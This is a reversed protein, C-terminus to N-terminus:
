KTICEGFLPKGTWFDGCWRIIPLPNIWRWNCPGSVECINQECARLPDLTLAKFLFHADCIAEDYDECSQVSFKRCFEDDRAQGIAGTDVFPEELVVLGPDITRLIVWSGLLLLLGLIANFILGKARSIQDPKGAATVWLFGAIVIMVFAFIAAFTIAFNYLALIHFAPGSVQTVLGGGPQPLPVILNYSIINDAKIFKTESFVSFLLLIGIFMLVYYLWRVNESKNRM